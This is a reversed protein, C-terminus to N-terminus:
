DTRQEILAYEKVLTILEDVLGEGYGELSKTYEHVDTGPQIQVMYEICKEILYKEM